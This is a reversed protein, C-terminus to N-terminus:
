NFFTKNGNVKNWISQFEPDADFRIEMLDSIVETNPRMGGNEKIIENM